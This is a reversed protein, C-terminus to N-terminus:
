WPWPWPSVDRFLEGIVTLEANERALDSDACRYTAALPLSANNIVLDCQGDSSSSVSYQPFTANPQCDLNVLRDGPSPSSPNRRWIIRASSAVQDTTCQLTVSTGALAVKDAPKLTLSADVTYVDSVYCVRRCTMTSCLMVSFGRM